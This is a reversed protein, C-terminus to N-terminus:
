GSKHLKDFERLAFKRMSSTKQYSYNIEVSTEELSLGDIYLCTLLSRYPKPTDKMQMLQKIIEKLKKQEENFLELMENLGDILDEIVYNPKNKARPMGDNVASKISKALEMQSTYFELRGKIWNATNRYEKLDESTM